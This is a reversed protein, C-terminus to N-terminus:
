HSHSHEISPADMDDEGLPEETVALRSALWDYVKTDLLRREIRPIGDPNYAEMARRMMDGSVSRSRGMEEFEADLEGTEVSLAYNEVIKDRILLWRVLEEASERNNSRFEAEDFDQPLEGKNERSIDEVFHDLYTDIVGGPVPFTYSDTVARRINAELHERLMSSWQREMEARIWGRLGEEDTATGNTMHRAFEEDVEPVERRAVEKVTVEYRRSSEASEPTDEPAPLTVKVVDGASRGVLATKLEELTREGGLYVTLNEQRDGVVPVDTELDLRQFDCQVLDEEGAPEDVPVRAAHRRRVNQLETEVEDDTVVHIPKTVATDSLDVLEFEPKVDFEIVAHLPGFPEYDIQTMRPSGFVEYQRSQSVEQDFREQVFQDVVEMAVSKGYMRKVLSLPVRGPRFGKMTMSQRHKRLSQEIRPALTDADAKLDFRYEVPSLQEISTEM